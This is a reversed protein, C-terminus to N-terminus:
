MTVCDISDRLIENEIRAMKGIILPNTLPQNSCPQEHLTSGVEPEYIQDKMYIIEVRVGATDIDHRSKAERM